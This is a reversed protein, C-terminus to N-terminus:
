KHDKCVFYEYGNENTVIKADFISIKKKCIKCRVIDWKNLLNRAEVDAGKNKRLYAYAKKSERELEEQTKDEVMNM